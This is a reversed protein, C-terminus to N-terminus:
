PAERRNKKADGAIDGTQTTTGIVAVATDGEPTARNKERARPTLPLTARSKTGGPRRMAAANEAMARTRASPPSRADAMAPDLVRKQCNLPRQRRAQITQADPKALPPATNKPDSTSRLSGTTRGQVWELLSTESYLPRRGFKQFEPGGGLCRLKSLTAPAIKFGRDTLFAAAQRTDRRLDFETM